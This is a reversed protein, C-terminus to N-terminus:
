HLFVVSGLVFYPKVVNRADELQECNSDMQHVGQGGGEQMHEHMHVNQSYLHACFSNQVMVAVSCRGSRITSRGPCM